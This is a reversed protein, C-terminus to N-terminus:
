LWVRRAARRREVRIRELGDTPGAIAAIEIGRLDARTFVATTGEVTYESQDDPFYPRFAYFARERGAEFDRVASTDPLGDIKVELSRGRREIRLGAALSAVPRDFSGSFFATIERKGDAAESLAADLAEPEIRITDCDKRCRCALKRGLSVRGRIRSRTRRRRRIERVGASTYSPEPVLGVGVTRWREVVRVGTQAERREGLAHFEVSLGRREGSRIGRLAEHGAPTRPAVARLELGRATDELELGNGLWAVAKLPEHDLDLHADAAIEGGGPEFRERHTPSIEGYPLVLGTITRGSARVEAGLALREM